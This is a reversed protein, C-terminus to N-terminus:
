APGQEFPSTPVAPPVGGWGNGPTVHNNASTNGLEGKGERRGQSGLEGQEEDSVYARRFSKPCSLCMLQPGQGPPLTRWLPVIVPTLGRQCHGLGLRGFGVVRSTPWGVKDGGRIGVM